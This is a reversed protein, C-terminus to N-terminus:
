LLQRFYSVALVNESVGAELVNPLRCSLKTRLQNLLHHELVNRTGFILTIPTM